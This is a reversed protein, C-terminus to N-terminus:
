PDLTPPTNLRHPQGCAQPWWAMELVGLACPIGM